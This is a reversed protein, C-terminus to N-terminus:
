KLWWGLWYVFAPATFTLSDIRDVVGGMGPLLNSGDKVGSDRKIGSMNIDGFFGAVAVVLGILLPGTIGQLSTLWPALCLALLLTGGLGGFFGEWTKKPSLKPAIRHRQHATIQSRGVLAQFIDNGETLILLYLLWGAPGAPGTAFTPHILLYAAHAMGYYLVMMGWFIGGTTRIYGHAKGQLIQVLAIIALSALPIFIVFAAAQAFLILLYNMVGIAYAAILVPRETNHIGLLAAYEHFAVVSAILLLLCVGLRGALIASGVVIALIWWTRLSALRQHRVSPNAHRLSIWRAVSGIVMSVALANLMWLLSSPPTTIM